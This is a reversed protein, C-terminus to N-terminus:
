VSPEAGDALFQYIRLAASMVAELDSAIINQEAMRVAQRIATKRLEADMVGM